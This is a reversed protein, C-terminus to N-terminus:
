YSVTKAYKGIKRRKEREKHGMPRSLGVVLPVLFISLSLPLDPTDKFRVPHADKHGEQSVLFSDKDKINTQSHPFEETYVINFLLRGLNADHFEGQDIFTWEFGCRLRLMLLYKATREM